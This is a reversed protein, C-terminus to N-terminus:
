PRAPRELLAQVLGIREQNLNLGINTFMTEIEPGVLVQLGLSPRGRAHISAQATRHWALTEASVDQWALAHLGSAEAAARLDRESALFSASPERAWPVPLLPEGAPGAVVEYLALRGGPRLVRHIERFLRRKEPVNMSVHQLLAANFRREQLPLRAADACLFSVRGSLGTLATLWRGIRCYSEVADVGVVRCGHASSLHRAPGGIGCGVDLVRSSGALRLGLAMERTAHLGRLHFEDLAHLDDAPIPGGKGAYLTLASRIRAELGPRDYTRAVHRVDGPDPCGHVGGDSDRM